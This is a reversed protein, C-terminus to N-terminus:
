THMFFCYGFEDLSFLERLSTRAPITPASQREIEGVQLLVPFPSFM